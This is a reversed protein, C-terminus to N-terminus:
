SDNPNTDFLVLGGALVGEIGSDTGLLPTKRSASSAWLESLAVGPLAATLPEEPYDNVYRQVKFTAIKSKLGL